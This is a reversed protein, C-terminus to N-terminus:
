KFPTSISLAAYSLPKIPKMITHHHDSFHQVSLFLPDYPPEHWVEPAFGLLEFGLFSAGLSKSYFASPIKDVDSSRVDFVLM